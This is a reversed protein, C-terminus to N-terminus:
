NKKPLANVWSKRKGDLEFEKLEVEVIYDDGKKTVMKHDKSGLWILTFPANKEKSLLGGGFHAFTMIDKDILLKTLEFEQEM